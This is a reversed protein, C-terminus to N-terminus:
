ARWTAGAKAARKIARDTEELDYLEISTVQEETAPNLISLYSM